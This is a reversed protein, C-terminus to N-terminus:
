GGGFWPKLIYAFLAVAGFGCSLLLTVLLLDDKSDRKKGKKMYDFIKFAIWAGVLYSLFINTTTFQYDMLM